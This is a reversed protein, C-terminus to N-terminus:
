SGEQHFVIEPYEQQCNHVFQDFKLISIQTKHCLIYRTYLYFQSLFM